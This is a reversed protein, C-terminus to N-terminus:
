NKPRTHHYTNISFHHNIISRNLMEHGPQDFFRSIVRTNAWEITSLFNPGMCVLTAERKTKNGLIVQQGFAKKRVPM